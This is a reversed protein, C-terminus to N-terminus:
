PTYLPLNFIAVLESIVIHRGHV